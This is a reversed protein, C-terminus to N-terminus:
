IIKTIKAKFWFTCGTKGPMHEVPIVGYEMNHLELVSKCINLGLGSGSHARKYTKDNKVYRDWIIKKNEETVGPGTDTISIKVYGEDTGGLIEQKVYVKNDDGTHTM